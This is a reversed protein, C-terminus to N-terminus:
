IVVARGSGLCVIPDDPTLGQQPFGLLCHAPLLMHPATGQPGEQPPVLTNFEADHVSNGTM